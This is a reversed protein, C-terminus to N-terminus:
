AALLGLAIAKERMKVRIMTIAESRTRHDYPLIYDYVTGENAIAFTLEEEALALREEPNDRIGNSPDTLRQWLIDKSLKLFVNFLDNGVKERISVSGRNNVDMIIIKDENKIRLYESMPTGYLKGNSEHRDWELFYDKNIRKQFLNESAFDYKDNSENIRRPRTTCSRSFGIISPYRECYLEILKTKGACTPGAINLIPFPFNQNIM